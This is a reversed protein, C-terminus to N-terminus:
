RPIEVGQAAPEYILQSPRDRLSQTLQRFELVAARTDRVLAEVQPLGDQTFGRVGERNEAIMADLRDSARAMNESTIRLREMGAALDPGATKTAQQVDALVARTSETAARLESLLSAADTAMQPLGGSARHLDGIVKSLAAINEDSLLANARVVLESARLVVNPLSNVFTEFNSHASRIVPYQLSPVMELVKLGGDGPVLQQLDIFLLGTVGQLSLQAVTRESVPTTSDIDVVVMVRDAARGDLRIRRVRGVDVGLYRVPGGESLGSVSGDFYIEYRAYDRQDRTDSYWFVFAAAMAVLLLVFAGVAAYNAEREM